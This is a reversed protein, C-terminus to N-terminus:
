QLANLRYQGCPCCHWPTGKVEQSQTAITKPKHSVFLHTCAAGRWSLRGDEGKTLVVSGELPALATVSGHQSSCSDYLRQHCFASHAHWSLAQPRTPPSCCTIFPSSSSPTLLIGATLEQHVFLYRVEDLGVIFAKTHTRLSREATCRACQQLDKGPSRLLSWLLDPHLSLLYPRHVTIWDFLEQHLSGCGLHPLLLHVCVPLGLASCCPHWLCCILHSLVLVQFCHLHHLQAEVGWGPQTYRWARCHCGWLGGIPCKLSVNIVICGQTCVSSKDM